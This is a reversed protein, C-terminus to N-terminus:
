VTSPTPMAWLPPADVRTERSRGRTRPPHPPLPPLDDQRLFVRPLHLLEVRLRHCGRSGNRHQQRECDHPSNTRRSRLQQETVLFDGVEEDIAKPDAKFDAGRRVRYKREGIKEFPQWDYRTGVKLEGSKADFIEIRQELKDEPYGQLIEFELWEKDPGMATIRAQTFPLPDYDITLGSLKLNKCQSISVAETIEPASWKSAKCSSNWM